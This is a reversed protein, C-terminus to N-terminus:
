VKTIKKKNKVPYNISKEIKKKQASAEKYMIIEPMELFLSFKKMKSNEFYEILWDKEKIDSWFLEMAKKKPNIYRLNKIYLLNRELNLYNLINRCTQVSM